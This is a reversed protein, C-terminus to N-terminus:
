SLLYFFQRGITGWTINTEARLLLAKTADFEAGLLQKEPGIALKKIRNFLRVASQLKFVVNRYQNTREDVM